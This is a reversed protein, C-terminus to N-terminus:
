EHNIKMTFTLAPIDHEHGFKDTITLIVKTEIDNGVKVEAGTPTLVMANKPTGGETVVEFKATFYENEVEKGDNVTIM